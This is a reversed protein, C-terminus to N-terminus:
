PYCAPAAPWGSATSRRHALQTQHTRAAGYHHYKNNINHVSLQVVVAAACRQIKGPLRHKSAVNKHNKTDARACGGGSRPEESVTTSCFLQGLGLVLFQEDDLLAVSHVVLIVSKLVIWQAWWAPQTRRKLVVEQHELLFQELLISHIQKQVCALPVSNTKHLGQLGHVTRCLLGSSCPWCSFRM